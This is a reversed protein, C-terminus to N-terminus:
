IKRLRSDPTTKTERESSPKALHFSFLNKVKKTPQHNDTKEKLACLWNQVLHQKHSSTGPELQLEIKEKGKLNGGGLWAMCTRRKIKGTGKKAHTTSSM